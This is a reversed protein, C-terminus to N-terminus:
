AKKKNDLFTSVAFTVFGVLYIVIAVISTIAADIQKQPHNVPILMEGVVEEKDLIFFIISLILCTALLFIVITEYKQIKDDFIVFAISGVIFLISLITVAINPNKEVFYGTTAVVMYMIFGILTILTTILLLTNRLSFKSKLKDM